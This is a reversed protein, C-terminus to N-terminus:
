LVNLIVDGHCGALCGVVRRPALRPVSMQATLAHARHALACVPHLYRGKARVTLTLLVALLTMRMATKPVRM